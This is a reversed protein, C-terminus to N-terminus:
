ILNIIQKNEKLWKESEKYNPCYTAVLDWFKKSHNKEVTHCLEHIIVYDVVVYPCFALFISFNLRNKCSCSGWRTKAKTISCNKYNLGLKYTIEQLKKDIYLKLQGSIYNIFKIKCNEIPLFLINGKIDVRNNNYFNIYYENNFLRIVEDQEFKIKIDSNIAKVRHKIIWDAKLNIFKNIETEKSRLPARVILEGKTSILLMISKRKSRIIKTPELLENM